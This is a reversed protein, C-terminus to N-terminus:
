RQAKQGVAGSPHAALVEDWSYGSREMLATALADGWAAVALGSGMALIAGPDADPTQEIVVTVDALDALPSHEVATICLLAAGRACALEAFQNLEASGGGKSAAVLVDGACVAGLGGHLADAPHVFLSATGTTSLLHAMRRAIFGSTGVGTTLVKGSRAHLLEVAAVFTADLAGAVDAVAAAEAQVRRRAGDLMPTDGGPREASSVM